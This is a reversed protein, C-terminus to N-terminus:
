PGNVILLLSRFLSTAELHTGQFDLKSNMNLLPLSWLFFKSESLTFPVKGQLTAHSANPVPSSSWDSMQNNWSRNWFKLCCIHDTNGVICSSNNLSNPIWTCENNTRSKHRLLYSGGLVYRMRFHLSHISELEMNACCSCWKPIIRLYLTSYRHQEWIVRCYTGHFGIM